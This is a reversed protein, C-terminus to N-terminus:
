FESNDDSVLSKIILVLKIPGPHRGFHSTLQESTKSKSTKSKMQKIEEKNSKRKTKFKTIKMNEKNQNKIWPVTVRCRRSFALRRRERTTKHNDDSRVCGMVNDLM